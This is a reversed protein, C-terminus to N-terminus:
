AGALLPVGIKLVELLEDDLAGTEDVDLVIDLEDVM